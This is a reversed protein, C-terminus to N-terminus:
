PTQLFKGRRAIRFENCARGAPPGIVVVLRSDVRTVWPRGGMEVPVV